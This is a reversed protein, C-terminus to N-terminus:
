LHSQLSIDKKFICPQSIIQVKPPTFTHTSDIFFDEYLNDTQSPDMAYPSLDNIGQAYLVTDDICFNGTYSFSPQSVIVFAADAVIEPRRSQFSAQNGYLMTTAATLIMTRPWLANVAIKQPRFEEAMGLVCM